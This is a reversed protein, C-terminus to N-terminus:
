EPAAASPQAAGACAPGTSAGPAARRRRSARRKEAAPEPAPAPEALRVALVLAGALLFCGLYATAARVITTTPGADRWLGVAVAALAACLAVTHVIRRM